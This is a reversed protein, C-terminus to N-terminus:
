ADDSSFSGVAISNRVEFFFNFVQAAGAVPQDFLQWLADGPQNSRLRIRGIQQPQVETIRRNSIFLMWGGPKDLVRAHGKVLAHSEALAARVLCAHIERGRRLNEFLGDVADGSSNG